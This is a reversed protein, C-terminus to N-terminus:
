KASRITVAMDTREFALGAPALVASLLGDIDVDRVDCSVLTERAPPTAGASAPDWAIALQLQAALQDLVSGVPKNAIRLTYRQEGPQSPARDETARDLAATPNLTGQLQQHDEWRASVSQRRGKRGWRITADAAALARIASEFRDSAPYAAALQVPRAIPTAGVHGGDRSASLQLDFGALILVARDIPAIGPLSRAPWLDHPITAGDGMESGADSIAAAFLASPESRRPYEWPAPTLWRRRTPGRAVSQRALESLTALDRAAQRPGFYVVTRLSTWGWDRGESAALRDLFEALTLNSGALSVRAHPDIRRDIWLSVHQVDALRELAAAVEHDAWAVTVRQQLQRALGANALLPPGGQATLVCGIWVAVAVSSAGVRAIRLWRISIQGGSFTLWFKRQLSRSAWQRGMPNIYGNEQPAVADRM